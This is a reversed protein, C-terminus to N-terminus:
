HIAVVGALHRWKPPLAQLRPTTLAAAGASPTLVVQFSVSEDDPGANGIFLTYTGAPASQVSLREPKATVSLASALIPCSAAEFQEFSCNGSVLVADVDNTAFTWDVTADIRGPLTTTFPNVRGLFDAELSGSGEAVVRPPPPPPTPTPTFVPDPTNGGGGCAGLVMAISIVGLAKTLRAM